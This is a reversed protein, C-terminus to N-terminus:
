TKLRKTSMEKAFDAQLKKVFEVYGKGMFNLGSINTIDKHGGSGAEVIDWYSVSFKRLLAKDFKNMGKFPKNMTRALKKWDDRTVKEKTKIKGKFLAFLDSIRFGIAGQKLDRIDQDFIRKVNDLSVMNSSMKSKYKGMVKKAIDGLHHPNDGANFPNKAIQILGMPWAIVIFHADPNNKFPTYRDYSGPKRMSGGGYQVITTGQMQVNPNKKQAAVYETQHRHIDEPAVYGAAKAMRTINVFMNILSPRSALVLDSLFNPKNKYTLLLKNTVFGMAQHNKQVTKKKDVSFAARMIDDPKLGQSAFDASDITSIVKVDKPPFIDQPSLVQSIFAANSPTKVFSTAGKSQTVEAGVQNDHHDTHINMIPKGHAFDVMVALKGRKPKPVAYEKGGYQIPYAATTKIGFRKLYDIIAIASTVGDLDIHFYVEAEKFDKTLDKINRLGSEDLRLADDIRDLISM